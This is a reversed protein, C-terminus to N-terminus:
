PGVEEKLKALADCLQYYGCNCPEDSEVGCRGRHSGNQNMYEAAKVVDLLARLHNRMAVILAADHRGAYAIEGFCGWDKGDNRIIHDGNVWAPCPLDVWPGPTANALLAELHEITIM